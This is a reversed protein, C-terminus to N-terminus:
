NIKWYSSRGTLSRYFDAIYRTNKEGITQALLTSIAAKVYRRMWRLSIKAVRNKRRALTTERFSELSNAIVGTMGGRQMGVTILNDIFFASGTKLERLLLEYDGAFRFSEDFKGHLEFLSHHHMLGPHPVTMQQLFQRQAREWPEGVLLLIEGTESVKAVQGYVVRVGASTAEVLYRRMRELVDPKWFYDDAGLFCIWDGKAHELAKNWAHYIGRDPESEWYTIKDSNARLIDVTGDTSGGDMIILEKHPYTQGAVSDICRQLTQAGNFVAVIVSILPEQNV